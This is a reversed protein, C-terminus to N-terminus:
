DLQLGSVSSLFSHACIAGGAERERGLFPFLLQFCDARGKRERSKKLSSM